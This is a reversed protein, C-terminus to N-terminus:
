QIIKKPNNQEFLSAIHKMKYWWQEHPRHKAVDYIKSIDRMDTFTVHGGEIGIMVCDNDEKQASKILYETAKTGLTTGIIRDFPSPSGGQQLHGLIAQRVDFLDGGEEEYLASVFQTTYIENAMENRIVLGLSKGSKFMDSLRDVDNKLNNLSIGDEPIYVREAGTSLGAMMALYGCGKGMVEVVFTRNQAIASLKIKDIAEIINNLATDAGVSMSTGPLNNAISAPLCVIPINFASFDKRKIFMEHVTEYGTTGGIMLIANIEHKEINKSMQYFDNHAPTKRNTGLMSGGLSTWGEVEMWEMERINGNILGEYGNKVGLVRHGKDIGYRVAARVAMNMGPSPGSANMVLINLGNKKKIKPVSKQIANYTQLTEQFTKGRLKIAKKFDGKKVMEAISRTLMVSEMLPATKVKNKHIGILVSEENGTSKMLYKVAEYGVITSM